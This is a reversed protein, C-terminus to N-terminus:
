LLAVSSPMNWVTSTCYVHVMQRCVPVEVLWFQSPIGTFIIVHVVTFTLIAHAKLYLGNDPGLLPHVSWGNTSPVADLQM